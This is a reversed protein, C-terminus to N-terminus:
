NRSAAVSIGDKSDSSVHALPNVYLGVGHHRFGNNKTTFMEVSGCGDRDHVADPSFKTMAHLRPASCRGDTKKWFKYSLFESGPLKCCMDEANNTKSHRGRSVALDHSIGDLAMELGQM